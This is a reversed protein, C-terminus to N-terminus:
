TVNEWKALRPKTVTPKGDRVYEAEAHKLFLVALRSVTLDGNIVPTREAHAAEWDALIKEFKAKTDPSGYVGISIRKGNVTTRAQGSTVHNGYVPKRAM